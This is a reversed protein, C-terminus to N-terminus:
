NGNLTQRLARVEVEMEQMVTQHKSDDLGLMRFPKLDLFNPPQTSPQSVTQALIVSVTVVDTLDAVGRHTRAIDEHDRVAECVEEPL